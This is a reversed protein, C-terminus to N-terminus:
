WAGLSFNSRISRGAEGAERASLACGSGLSGFSFFPGLSLFAVWPPISHPLRAEGSGGPGGPRDDVHRLLVSRHCAHRAGLAPRPVRAKRSRSPWLTIQAGFALPAGRAGLALLALRAWDEAGAAAHQAGGLFSGLSLRAESSRRTRVPPWSVFPLDAEGPPRTAGPHVSQFPLFPLWSVGADAKTHPTWGTGRPRWSGWARRPSRDIVAVGEHLRAAGSRWSQWPVLPRRSGLTVFSFHAWWSWWPLEREVEELQLSFHLAFLAVSSGRPLLALPTLGPTASEEARTHGPWGAWWAVRPNRTGLSLANPALWAWRPRLSGRADAM